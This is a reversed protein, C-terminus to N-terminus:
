KEKRHRELEGFLTLTPIWAMKVIGTGNDRGKAIIVETIGKDATDPNYYEDRYLMLIKDAAAEIDGSERIDSMLPKHNQRAECARSLQSLLLVTCDLEKAMEKAERAVQGYEYVINKGPIKILQLYDIIVLGLRNGNDKAIRRARSRIDAMSLGPTDVISMKMDMVNSMLTAFRDAEDQGMNGTRLKVSDVGSEMSALRYALQKATMELSFIAIPERVKKAFNRAINLAFATKGMSPRAAIVILEGNQMGGIYNDLSAFGTPKGILAKGGSKINQDVEDEVEAAVDTISRYEDAKISNTALEFATQEIREVFDACKLDLAMASCDHMAKIAKRRMDMERIVDVYGTFYATSPLSGTLELLYSVDVKGKLLPLVTVTSVVKKQARLTKIATFIARNVDDYFMSENLTDAESVCESDLLMCGLVIKEAEIDAPLM